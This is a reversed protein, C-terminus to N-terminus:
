QADRGREFVKINVGDSILVQTGKTFFCKQSNWVADLSTEESGIVEHVSCRNIVSVTFKKETSAMYTRRYLIPPHHFYAKNHIIQSITYHDVGFRRGLARCGYEKDYPIYHNRIWTADSATLKALAHQESRATKLFGANLAHRTNEKFTTWELNSVVNNQKNGDKHNVVPKDDPNPIFTEAVAKHVRFCKKKSRSGISVCIGCYGGGITSQM